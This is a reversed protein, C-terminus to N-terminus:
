KVKVIVVTIDDHQEEDAQFKRAHSVLINRIKNASRHHHRCLLEKVRQAGFFEHAPNMAETLGDSYLAFCDGSEIPSIVEDINNDFEDGVTIGLGIGRPLIVEADDCKGKILFPPNHGARAIVAQKADLDFLVALMTIFSSKDIGATIKRNVEILIDKPSQFLTGAMQIMGQVKSMYLAAPMGKGSVDGVFTVLRRDNQLIYDFYDGGVETAPISCGAIELGQFHPPEKPLLNEQIRRAIKLEEEARQQQLENIHLRANEIAIATQGAVTQLIDMEERSYIEGSLKAGLLIIGSLRNRIRMPIALELGASKIRELEEPSIDELEGTEGPNGLLLCGNKEVLIKSLNSSYDLFGCECNEPVGTRNYIRFNKKEKEFASIIIKEVQVAEKLTFSVKDLIEELHLLTPLDQSLQLLMKRYNRRERYFRKDVFAQMREKVPNLALATVAIFLANLMEGRIGIQRALTGGLGVVLGMYILIFFGTTFSYILGKRIVISVDMLGYKMVAYGFSLPFFSMMGFLIAGGTQGLLGAVYGVLFVLVVLPIMALLLGWLIIKLAKREKTQTIKRYSFLFSGIALLVYIGISINLTRGIAPYFRGAVALGVQPIYFLLVALPYKELFRRKIPFVSFFHLIAPGWLTQAVIRIVIATVALMSPRPSISSFALTSFLVFCLYFFYRSIKKLPNAMIVLYGTFLFVLGVLASVIQIPNIVGSLKVDFELQRTGRRITYHLVQGAPFANIYHQAEWIGAFTKGDIALLFDGNIIGVRDVSGDPEVGVILMGSPVDVWVCNDTNKIWVFNRFIFNTVALALFIGTLTTIIIKNRNLRTM